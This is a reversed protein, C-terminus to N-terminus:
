RESCKFIMTRVDTYRLGHMKTGAEIEQLEELLLDPLHLPLEKM